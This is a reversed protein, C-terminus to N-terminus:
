NCKLYRGKGGNSSLCGMVMNHKQWSLKARIETSLFVSSLTPSQLMRLTSSHLPTHPLFSALAASPALVGVEAGRRGCRVSLGRGRKGNRVGVRSTLPCRWRPPPLARDRENGAAKRTGLKRAGGGEEGASTQLRNGKLSQTSQKQVFPAEGRERRQRRRRLPEPARRLTRLPRRLLQLWATGQAAARLRVRAPHLRPLVGASGRVAGGRGASWGGRVLAAAAAPFGARRAM